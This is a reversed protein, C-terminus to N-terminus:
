TASNVQFSKQAYVVVEVFEVTHATQARPQEGAVSAASSSLVKCGCQKEPRLALSRILLNRTRTVAVENGSAAFYPFFQCSCRCCASLYAAFHTRPVSM